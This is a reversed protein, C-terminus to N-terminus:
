REPVARFWFLYFDRFQIIKMHHNKFVLNYDCLEQFCSNEKRLIRWTDSSQRELKGQRDGVSTLAMPKVDTNPYLREDTM